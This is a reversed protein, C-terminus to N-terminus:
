QLNVRLGALVNYAQGRGNVATDGSVTGYLSVLENFQLTSGVDVGLWSGRLTSQFPM